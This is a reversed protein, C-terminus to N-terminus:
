YNNMVYHLLEQFCQSEADKKKAGKQVFEIEKWVLRCSWVRMNRSADSFEEFEPKPSVEGNKQSWELFISKPHRTISQGGDGMTSTCVKKQKVYGPLWKAMLGQCTHKPIVVPVLKMYADYVASKQKTGEGSASREKGPKGFTVTGRYGIGSPSYQQVETPKKWGMKQCFELAVAKYKSKDPLIPLGHEDKDIHQAHALDMSPFGGPTGGYANVSRPSLSQNDNAQQRGCLIEAEPIMNNNLGMAAAAVNENFRNVNDVQKIPQIPQSAHAAHSPPQSRLQHVSRALVADAQQMKIDNRKNIKNSEIQKITNNELNILSEWATVMAGYLGAEMLSMANPIEDAGKYADIVHMANMKLQLNVTLQRRGEETDPPIPKANLEPTTHQLTKEDVEDMAAHIQPQIIPPNARSNTHIKKNYEVYMGEKHDSKLEEHEKVIPCNINHNVVPKCPCNKSKSPIHVHIHSLIECQKRQLQQVNNRLDSVLQNLRDFNTMMEKITAKALTCTTNSSM